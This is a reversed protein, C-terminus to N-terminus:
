LENRGTRTSWCVGRKRGGGCAGSDRALYIRRDHHAAPHVRDRGGSAVVERERGAHLLLLRRVQPEVVACRTSTAHAHPLMGAPHLVVEVVPEIEGRHLELRLRRVVVLQERQRGAERGHRGRRKGHGHRRHGPHVAAVHVRRQAHHLALAARLAPAPDAQVQALPGVERRPVNQRHVPQQHPGAEAAHEPEAEAARVV